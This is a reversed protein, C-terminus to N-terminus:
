IQRPLGTVGSNSRSRSTVKRVAADIWEHVDNGDRILFPADAFARERAQKGIIQGVIFGGPHERDVQVALAVQGMGQALAAHLNGGRGQKGVCSDRQRGHALVDRKNV